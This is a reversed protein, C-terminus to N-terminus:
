HVNSYDPSGIRSIYAGLRQVLSPVFAPSLSAIRSVKFEEYKDSNYLVPTIYSFDVFFPGLEKGDMTNIKPLFHYSSRNRCHGSYKQRFDSEARDIKKRLKEEKQSNGEAVAAALQGEVESINDKLGELDKTWDNSVDIMKAFLLSDGDNLRELDCRPSVLIFEGEAHSLIDGTQFGSCSPPLFYWEEPHVKGESGRLLDNHLHSSLHRALSLGLFNEAEVATWNEWRPWISGCFVQALRAKILKKSERIALIMPVKENIWDLIEYQLPQEQGEEGGKTFLRVINSEDAMDSATPEGTVHAVVALESELLEKRVKNGDHTADKVGDERKLRIDIVAADYKRASILSTAESFTQAQDITFETGNRANFRLLQRTWTELQADDDEVVLIRLNTM